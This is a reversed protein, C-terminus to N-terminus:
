AIRVGLARVQELWRNFQEPTISGSQVADLFPHKTVPDLVTQLDKCLMALLLLKPYGSFEPHPACARRNVPLVIRTAIHICALFRERM